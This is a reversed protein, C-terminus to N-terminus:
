TSLKGADCMDTDLAGDRLRFRFGVGHMSRQIVSREPM